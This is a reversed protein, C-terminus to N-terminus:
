FIQDHALHYIKLRPGPHIWDPEFIKVPVYNATLETYFERILQIRNQTEPSFNAINCELYPLYFNENTILYACGSEILEPINRRRFNDQESDFPNASQGPKDSPVQIPVMKIRYPHSEYLELRDKIEQPLASAGAGYETYRQIDFVALDYHSNDYCFYLNQAKNQHIWESALERTDPQIRLVSSYIIFITSPAIILYQWKKVFGSLWVSLFIIMAPFVAFLYDIGKKQWSGVYLFTLLVPVLLALQWPERKKLAFFVASLLGAGILLEYRLIQGTEWLYNIGAELAVASQMQSSVLRFGHWYEIPKVLVLPNVVLFAALTLGVIGSIRRISFKGNIIILLPALALFGANYKTGISLGAFIAAFYLKRDEATFASEVLFLTSLAAFFVMLTDATAWTSYGFLHWNLAFILSAWLATDIGFTKLIKRYVILITILSILLNFFRGSWYFVSPDVLFKVAFEYSDIFYGGLKGAVFLFAYIGALVYEFLAPYIYIGPDPSLRAGMSLAVKSLFYETSNFAAPLGDFLGPLKVLLSFFLIFFIGYKDRLRSM